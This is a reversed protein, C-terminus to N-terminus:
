KMLNGCVKMQITLPPSNMKWLNLDVFIVISLGPSQLSEDNEKREYNDCKTIYGTKM